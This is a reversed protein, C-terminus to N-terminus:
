AAPDKLNEHHVTSAPVVIDSGGNNVVVKDTGKVVGVFRGTHHHPPDLYWRVQDGAELPQSAIGKIIGPQHYGDNPFSLRVMDDGAGCVYAEVLVKAGHRLKTIDLDKM